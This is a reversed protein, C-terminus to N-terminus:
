QAPGECGLTQRPVLDYGAEKVLEIAHELALRKALQDRPLLTVAHNEHIWKELAASEVKIQEIDAQMQPTIETDQNRTSRGGAQSQEPKPAASVSPAYNGRMAEHERFKGLRMEISDAHNGQLLIVAAFSIVQDDSWGAPATQQGLALVEHYAKLFRRIQEQYARGTLLPGYYQETVKLVLEDTMLTASAVPVPVPAPQAAYLTLLNHPALSPWEQSMKLIDEPTFPKREQFAGFFESKRPRIAQATGNKDIIAWGWAEGQGGQGAQSLAARAIGRYFDRVGNSGYDVAFETTHSNWDAIQQLAKTIAETM